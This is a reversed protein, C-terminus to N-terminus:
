WTFDLRTNNEPKCWNEANTFTIDDKILKLNDLEEQTVLGYIDKGKKNYHIVYAQKRKDTKVQDALGNAMFTMEYLKYDEESKNPHQEVYDEPWKWRFYAVYDDDKLHTYRYDMMGLTEYKFKRIGGRCVFGDMDMVKFYYDPKDPDFRVDMYDLVLVPAYEVRGAAIEAVFANWAMMLFGGKMTRRLMSTSSRM